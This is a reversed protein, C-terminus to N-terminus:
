NVVRWADKPTKFAVCKQLIEPNEPHTPKIKWVIKWLVVRRVKNPLSVYRHFMWWKSTWFLHPNEMPAM